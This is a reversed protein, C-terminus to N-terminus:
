SLNSTLTLIENSNAKLVKLKTEKGTENVENIIGLKMQSKAIHWWAIDITLNLKLFM